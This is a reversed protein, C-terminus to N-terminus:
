QPALEVDDLKGWDGANMDGELGIVCTGSSGVVIDPIVYEVWNRWGTNTVPASLKGSGADAFFALARPNTGATGNAGMVWAHAKYTGPKLGKVTQSASFAYASGYWYSGSFTGTHTNNAPSSAEVRFVTV